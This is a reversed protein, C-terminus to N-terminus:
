SLRFRSAADNLEKALSELQQVSERASAISSDSEEVMQAIREINSAISASAQSQENMATAVDRIQNLTGDVAGRIERLAAEARETRSMGEDVMQGVDRMKGVVGDVDQQVSQTTRVIDQTATGTREALKRVEDAVVAFGRGQEGARAAEIAANLALLNTQEAIDKIVGAITDIQRSSDVLGGILNSAETVDRAVKQNESAVQSALQEGEAALAASQRSHHETERASNNVHDISVSMQEVAAATASTAEASANSRKSIQQMEQKLEGASRLLVAAASNFREVMQRLGDQMRVMAGLLSDEGANTKIQQSLDGAAIARAIGAAYDPEGGLQRVIGRSMTMVLGGVVILLLVGLVLFALAYNWFARDVDDVFFGIGVLWDWAVFHYVGNIKPIQKKAPDNARTTYITMVAPNHHTLAELYVESTTRGDPMKSGPDVKGVRKPDPHVLLVNDMTRAFFYEDGHRLGALAEKARAQAEDHSLKGSAEMRQYNELMGQALALLRDIQGQRESMMTNRLSYLGFASVILLGVVAAAIITWVRHSLKM